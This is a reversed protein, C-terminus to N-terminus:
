VSQSVSQSVCVSAKLTHTHIRMYTHAREELLPQPLSSDVWGCVSVCDREGGREKEVGGGIAQM